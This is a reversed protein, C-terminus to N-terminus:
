QRWVVFTYGNCTVADSQLVKLIRFTERSGFSFVTAFQKGVGVVLGVPVRNTDTVVDDDHITEGAVVHRFNAPLHKPVNKPVKRM